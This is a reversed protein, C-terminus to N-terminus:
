FNCAVLGVTYSYTDNSHCFKPTDGRRSVTIDCGRTGWESTKNGDQFRGYICSDTSFDVSNRETEEVLWESKEGKGRKITGFSRGHAARFRRFFNRTDWLPTYRISWTINEYPFKPSIAIRQGQDHFFRVRRNSLRSRKRKTTIRAYVLRAFCRPIVRNVLQSPFNIFDYLAHM